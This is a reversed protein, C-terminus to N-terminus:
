KSYQLKLDNRVYSNRWNIKKEKRKKESTVSEGSSQLKSDNRFNVLQDAHRSFDFKGQWTYNIIMSSMPVTYNLTKKSM